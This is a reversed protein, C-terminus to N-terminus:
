PYYSRGSDDFGSYARDINQAREAAQPDGRGAVALRKGSRANPEVREQQGSARVRRAALEPILWGVVLPSKMGVIRASNRAQLAATM